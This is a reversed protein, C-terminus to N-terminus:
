QSLNFAVSIPIFSYGLKSTNDDNETMTVSSQTSFATGATASARFLFHVTGQVKTPASAVVARGDNRAVIQYGFDQDATASDPSLITTTTYPDQKEYVRWM